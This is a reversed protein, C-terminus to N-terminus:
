KEIKEYCSLYGHILSDMYHNNKFAHQKLRGELKFGSKELISIHHHRRDFTETFIRNLNLYKFSVQLIIEIFVLFYYEYISESTMYVPDVLFSLEARKSIWDINTIGGYGVCKQGDLYSFLIQHPRKMCFTPFIEKQYYLKQDVESILQSQRLIDMQNNRWLRINM